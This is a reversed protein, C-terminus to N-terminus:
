AGRRADTFVRMPPRYETRREARTAQPQPRQIRVVLLAAILLGAAVGVLLLFAVLALNM